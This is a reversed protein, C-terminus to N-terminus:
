NMGYIGVALLYNDSNNNVYQAKLTNNDLFGIQYNSLYESLGYHKHEGCIQNTQYSVFKSPITIVNFGDINNGSTGFIFVIWKYNKISDTLGKVTGSHIETYSALQEFKGLNSNLAIIWLHYIIYNKM